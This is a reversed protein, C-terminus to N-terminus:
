RNTGEPPQCSVEATNNAKDSETVRGFSDLRITYGGLQAPDAKVRVEAVAGPKLAPTRVEHKQAPLRSARSLVVPRLVVEHTSSPADGRGKNRIRIVLNGSDDFQCQRTDVVLDPLNASGGESDRGSGGHEDKDHGSLVAATGVILGAAVLAAVLGGSGGGGKMVKETADLSKSLQAQEDAGLTVREPAEGTTMRGAEGPGLSVTRDGAELVVRGETVFAFLQTGDSRLLVKSSVLIRGLAEAVIELRGKTNVVFVAGNRLLWVTKEDFRVFTDPYLYVERGKEVQVVTSASRTLLAEGASVDEDKKEIGKQDGDATVRQVLDTPLPVENKEDATLIRKVTAASSGDARASGPLPGLGLVIALVVSVVERLANRM